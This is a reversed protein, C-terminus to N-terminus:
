TQVEREEDLQAEEGASGPGVYSPEQLVVRVDSAWAVRPELLRPPSRAAFRRRHSDREQGRLGRAAVVFRAGRCRLGLPSWLVVLDPQVVQLGLAWLLVQVGQGALCYLTEPPILSVLVV